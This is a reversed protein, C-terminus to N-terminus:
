TKEELLERNRRVAKVVTLNEASDDAKKSQSYKKDSKM